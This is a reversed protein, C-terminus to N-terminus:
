VTTRSMVSAPDTADEFGALVWGSTLVVLVGVDVVVRQDAEKEAGPLM